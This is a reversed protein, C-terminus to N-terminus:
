AVNEEETPQGAGNDPTQEPSPTQEPAPTDVIQQVGNETIEIKVNMIAAISILEKKSQESKDSAQWKTDISATLADREEQSMKRDSVLPDNKPEDGGEYVTDILTQSMVKSNLINDVFQEASGGTRGGDGFMKGGTGTSMLVNTMDAVAAAEKEYEEDTMGAEKAESLNGFTDSFMNAIPKSAQDPVGYNKVVKPTSVTQMVEATQPTLDELMKQVAAHTDKTPDNAAEMVDVVKALSGLMTEYGGGDVSNKSISGATDAAEISSLGIKDHVMKSQLLAKLIYGTKEPGISETVAFSDLVPGLDKLLVKADLDGKTDNILAYITNFSHAIARAEKEKDTVTPIGSTIMNVSIIETSEIYANKDAVLNAALWANMDQGELRAKAASAVLEETTRIGYDDFLDSYLAILEEENDSYVNNIDNGLQEYLAEVDNPVNVTNMLVSIGFDAFGDVMVCLRPNELLDELVASITDEQAFLAIPDKSFSAFADKEVLTAAINAVTTVDEKITVSDSQAFAEIMSMMLPDLDAGFSPKSIGYFDEGERWSDTAAATVDSLLVPLITSKNFAKGIDRVSQAADAKDSDEATSVVVANAVARVTGTENRLTALQGDVDYTTMADYLLGGGVLKVTVSGANNASADVAEAVMSMVGSEDSQALSHLPVSAVDDVIDLTGVMPVCLVCFTLLGGLGGCLASVWSNKELGFRKPKKASVEVPKDEGFMKKYYEAGAEATPAAATEATEPEQQTEPKKKTTIKIFGSTILGTFAMAILRVILYFLLFLLPAIMMAALAVIIPKAAPVDQMMAIIEAPVFTDILAGIGHYATLSSALAALLASIVTLIIRTVSLQWARKKGKLAGILIAVAAAVLFVCSFILTFM